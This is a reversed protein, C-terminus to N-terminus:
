SRGNSCCALHGENFSLRFAQVVVKIADRVQSAAELAQAKYTANNPDEPLRKSM